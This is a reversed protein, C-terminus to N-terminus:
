VSRITEFRSVLESKDFFYKIERESDVLSESGHIANAELSKAFDRRITGEEAEMPNSSGMLQLNKYVADEREVVIIFVPGPMVSGVLPGFFYEEKYKIFFGEAKEKTLNLFKAASVRFGEEEYRTVIRGINNDLVANPKIICLTREISM